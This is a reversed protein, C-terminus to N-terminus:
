RTPTLSIVQLASGPLLLHEQINEEKREKRDSKGSRGIQSSDQGGRLEQANPLGLLLVQYKRDKNCNKHTFKEERETFLHKPPLM